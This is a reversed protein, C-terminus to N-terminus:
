RLAQWLAEAFWGRTAPQDWDGWGQTASSTGPVLGVYTAYTALDARHGSGAPVDPYVSPDDPQQVWRGQAVMARAIFSITQVRLVNTTPRYRGDPYGLAVGYHNLTGVDRWLDADVYGQDPFPNPWSEAEWGMARAILAAMQARLTTDNPGFCGNEYGRIVGRAALEVIAEYSPTAPTVDCFTPPQVPPAPPPAPPPPAPPPLPPPPLGPPPPAPPPPPPPAPPAPTSSTLMIRRVQGGGAYATYYLAQTAGYPGFALHVPNGAGSAFEGAAYGGAGNPTLLFLKGCNFDAFVYNGAYPAPWTGNPVFAGGTISGCGADRGYAYLPNTLGAPPPGCDTTSPYACFGERLNWGYDAGVQGLDIEEYASQGVDNIFFRTSTTNPDFAIRFPNRLGFAYIEQCQQGSAAGGTQNCRVGQYPNGLPIAGDRTIRLIKGSLTNLLRAAGGGTGGDGVSVYLYGDQGFHLDGGNHNGAPSPINDILWTEGSLNNTDSLTFRSVRNVCTGSKNVTYYLYIFRNNGVGFSLDVAVGLLGRESNSCVRAPLDPAAPTPPQDGQIVYLQGGQTTVLLRGDPTFALATPAGLSAVLSDSFGAPVTAAVATSPAALGPLLGALLLCLVFVFRLRPAM